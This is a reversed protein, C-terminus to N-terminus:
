ESASWQMCFVCPVGGEIHCDACHIDNRYPGHDHTLFHQALVGWYPNLFEITEGCIGCTRNLHFNIRSSVPVPETFEQLAGETITLVDGIETKLDRLDSSGNDIKVALASARQLSGSIRDLVAFMDQDRKDIHRYSKRTIQWTFFAGAIVMVTIGLVIRIINVTLLQETTYPTTDVGAINFYDLAIVTIYSFIATCAVIATFRISIGVALLCPLFLYFAFKSQLGGSFLIMLSILVIDLLLATITIVTLAGSSLKQFSFISGIINLGLAVMVLVVLINPDYSFLDFKFRVLLSIMLLSYCITRFLSQARFSEALDNRSSTNLSFSFPM